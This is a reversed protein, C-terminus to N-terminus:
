SCSVITWSLSLASAWSPGHRIRYRLIGTGEGNLEEFPVYLSVTSVGRAVEDPPMVITSPLLSPTRQIAARYLPLAGTLDFAVGAGILSAITLAPLAWRRLRETM